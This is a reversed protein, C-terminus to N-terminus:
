PPPGTAKIADYRKSDGSKKAKEVLFDYVVKQEDYGDISQAVGVYALIKEINL